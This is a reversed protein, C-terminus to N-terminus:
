DSNLATAIYKGDPTVIYKGSVKDGKKIDAVTGYGTLKTKEEVIVTFRKKTEPDKISVKSKDVKVKKVVGSFAVADEEGAFSASGFLLLIVTLCLVRKIQISMSMLGRRNILLGEPMQEVDM